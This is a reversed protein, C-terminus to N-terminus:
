FHYPASETCICTVTWRSIPYETVTTCYYMADGTDRHPFCPSRGTETPSLPTKESCLRLLEASSLSRPHVLYARVRLWTVACGKYPFCSASM